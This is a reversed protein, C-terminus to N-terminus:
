RPGRVDFSRLVDRVLTWAGDKGYHVLTADFLGEDRPTLSIVGYNYYGAAERAGPLCKDALGKNFIDLRGIERIKDEDGFPVIELRVRLTM